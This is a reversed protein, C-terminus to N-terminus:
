PTPLRGPATPHSPIGSPSAALPCITIQDTLISQKVVQSNPWIARYHLGHIGFLLHTKYAPGFDKFCERMRRSKKDELLQRIALTAHTFQRIHDTRVHRSHRFMQGDEFACPYDMVLLSPQLNIVTQFHWADQSKKFTDAFNQFCICSLLPFNRTGAFFTLGDAAICTILTPRAKSRGCVVLIM